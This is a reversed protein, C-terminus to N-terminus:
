RSTCTSSTSSGEATSAEGSGSETRLQNARDFQQRAGPPTEMVVVEGDVEDPRSAPAFVVADHGWRRFASALHTIHSNVGGEVCWDYPSVTAIKM